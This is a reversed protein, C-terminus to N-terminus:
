VVGLVPYAGPCAPYFFPHISPPVAVATCSFASEGGGVAVDFNGSFSLVAM